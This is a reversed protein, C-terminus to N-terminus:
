LYMSKYGDIVFKSILKKNKKSSIFKIINKFNLKKKNSIKFVERCLILDEPNDITLRLKKNNMYKPPNLCKIQFKNKHTRIYRTCLESKDLKSGLKNSLILAKMNIIEFGCGDIINDLFTADYNYKYHTQVIENLNELFTFPSESTIRFIDSAQTKKGCSILRSLVNTDSGTIFNINNKKAITKYIQNEIKNSIGLIIEDIVKYKKLRNIIFEIITIKNEIDLYHMPKGYLRTSQNRCAIAAVLKRKM